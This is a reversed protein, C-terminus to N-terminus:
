GDSSWPTLKIYSKFSSDTINLNPTGFKLGAQTILALTVDRHSTTSTIEICGGKTAMLSDHTGPLRVHPKYKKITVQVSKPKEADFAKVSKTDSVEASVAHASAPKSAPVEASAQQITAEQNIVEQTWFTFWLESKDQTLLIDRCVDWTDTHKFKIFRGDELKLHCRGSLVDTEEYSYQRRVQAVFTDHLAPFETISDIRIADCMEHNPKTHRNAARRLTVIVPRSVPTKVVPEYPPLGELDAMETDRM